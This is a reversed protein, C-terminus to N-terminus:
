IYLSSLHVILANNSASWRCKFSHVCSSFLNDFCPLNLEALMETVSYCRSYGFFIKICKNYCSRLKNFVTISYHRWLGADYLCMCFARFLTLKVPVSCKGYRRILINTRMFLNRIERKIDEDDTFDNNIMHGLYRFESVFQLAIGNLVFAPFETGISKRKCSPQFVMCVTKDVNCSMNIEFACCNLLSILYQLAGWSPALLVIDDAYALINFFFVM